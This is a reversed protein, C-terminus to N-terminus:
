KNIVFRIDVSDDDLGVSVVGDWKAQFIFIFIFVICFDSLKIHPRM